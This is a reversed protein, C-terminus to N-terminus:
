VLLILARKRKKKSWFAGPYPSMLTVRSSVGSETTNSDEKLMMQLIVLQQYTIQQKRIIRHNKNGRQKRSDAVTYLHNTMLSTLISSKRVM